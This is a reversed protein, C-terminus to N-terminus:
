GRVEPIQRSGRHRRGRRGPQTSTESGGRSHGDSADGGEDDGGGAAGAGGERHHEDDANNDDDRLDDDDAAVTTCGTVTLAAAVDELEAGTVNCM